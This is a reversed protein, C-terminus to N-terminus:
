YTLLVLYFLTLFIFLLACPSLTCFSVPNHRKQFLNQVYFSVLYIFFICASLSLQERQLYFLFLSLLFPVLLAFFSCALYFPVPQTFLVLYFHSLFGVSVDDDRDAYAGRRGERKLPLLRKGKGPRSIIASIFALHIIIDFIYLTRVPSHLFLAFLRLHRLLRM